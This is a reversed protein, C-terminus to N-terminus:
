RAEAVLLLQLVEVAMDSSQFTRPEVRLGVLHRGPGLPGIPQCLDGAGKCGPCYSGSAQAFLRKHLEVLHEQPVAKGDVSFAVDSVEPRTGEKESGLKKAMEAETLCCSGNERRAFQMRRQIMSNGFGKGWWRQSVSAVYGKAGQCAWGCPAECVLAFAEPVSGPVDAQLVLEGSASTGRYVRRLDRIGTGEPVRAHWSLVREWSGSSEPALALALDIGEPRPESGTLCQLAALTGCSRGKQQAVANGVLPNDDTPGRLIRPPGSAPETLIDALQTLIYHGIMHAILLHGLPGPHWNFNLAKERSQWWVDEAVLPTPASVLVPYFGLGAQVFDDAVRTEQLWQKTKERRRPMPLKELKKMQVQKRWVELEVASVYEESAYWTANRWPKSPGLEGWRMVTKGLEEREKKQLSLWNEFELGTNAFAFVVPRRKMGSAEQLFHYGECAPDHFMWWEWTLADAEHNTKAALCGTAFPAEGWGGAGFNEVRFGMGLAEFTPRLVEELMVPWTQNFYNDHGATVSSGFAVFVFTEKGHLRARLRERLRAGKDPAPITSTALGLIERGRGGPWFAEMGALAAAVRGAKPVEAEPPVAGPVAGQAQPATAEPAAAETATAKASAVGPSRAEPSAEEGRPAAAPEGDGPERGRQGLLMMQLVEVGMDPASFTRPRVRLGLLQRGPRLRGVPQCLDAASKCGACYLGGPAGFLRKHVEVLTDEPVEQGDISFAVDSVNERTYQGHYGIKNLIDDNSLAEGQPGKGISSRQLGQAV